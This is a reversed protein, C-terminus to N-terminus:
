FGGKLGEHPSFSSGTVPEPYPNLTQQVNEIDKLLSLREKPEERGIGNHGCAPKNTPVESTEAYKEKTKEDGAEAAKQREQKKPKQQQAKEAIHAAIYVLM